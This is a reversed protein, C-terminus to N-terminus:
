TEHKVVEQGTLARNRVEARQGSRKGRRSGGGEPPRASRRNREPRSEAPPPGRRRVTPVHQVCVGTLRHERARVAVLRYLGHPEGRIPIHHSQPGPVVGDVDVLRAISAERPDGLARYIADLPTAASDNKYIRPM